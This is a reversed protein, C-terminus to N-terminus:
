KFDEWFNDSNSVGVLRGVSQGVLWRLTYRQSKQPCYSVNRVHFSHLLAISRNKGTENDLLGIKEETKM